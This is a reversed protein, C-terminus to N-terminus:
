RDQAVDDNKMRLGAKSQWLEFIKTGETPDGAFMSSKARCHSDIRYIIPAKSVPRIADIKCNARWDFRGLQYQRGKRFHIGGHNKCDDFNEARELVSAEPSPDGPPAHFFCWYGLMYNPLEEARASHVAMTILFIITSILAVLLLNARKSHRGRRILERLASYGYSVGFLAILVRPVIKTM